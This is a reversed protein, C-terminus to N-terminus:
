RPWPVFAADRCRTVRRARRPSSPSAPRRGGRAAGAVAIMRTGGAPLVAAGQRLRTAAPLGFRLVLRGEIRHRVRYPAYHHRLKDIRGRTVRVHRRLTRRPRAM